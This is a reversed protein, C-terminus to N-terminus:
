RKASLALVLVGNRIPPGGLLVTGGSKLRIETRLVIEREPEDRHRPDRQVEERFLTVKMGIMDAKEPDAREPSVEIAFHEPLRFVQSETPEISAKIKNLFIYNDYAFLSKLSKSIPALRPDLEATRGDQGGVKDTSAAISTVEVSVAREAAAAVPAFASVLAISLAIVITRMHRGSTTARASGRAACDVSLGFGRSTRVRVKAGSAV